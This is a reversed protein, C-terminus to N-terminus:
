ARRARRREWLTKGHRWLWTGAIVYVELALLLLLPDYPARLRTDGFYIAATIMLAQTMGELAHAAAKRNGEYRQALADILQTKNM